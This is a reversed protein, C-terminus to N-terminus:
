EFVIVAGKLWKIIIACHFYPITAVRNPPKIKYKSRFVNLLSSCTKNGSNFIISIRLPKIDQAQREHMVSLNFSTLKLTCKLVFNELEKVNEVDVLHKTDECNFSM